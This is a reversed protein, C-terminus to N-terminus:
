AVANKWFYGARQYAILEKVCESVKVVTSGRNVGRAPEDYTGVQMGGMADATWCFTPMREGAMM